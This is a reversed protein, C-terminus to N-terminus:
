RTLYLKTQLTRRFTVGTVRGYNGLTVGTNQTGKGWKRINIHSPRGGLCLWYLFTLLTQCLNLSIQGILM